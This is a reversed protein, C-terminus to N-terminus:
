GTTQLSRVKTVIQDCGSPPVGQSKKKRSRVIIVTEGHDFTLLDTAKILEQDSIVGYRENISKAKYWHGMIAERIEEDMGSRRANTKWTHRLDNFIPFPDFDLNIIRRDWCWRLEDRHSAAAGNHLFVRDTGMARVKLVDELIPVLEEHIPVRKWDREKVHEPGLYIM